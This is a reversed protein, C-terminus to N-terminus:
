QRSIKNLLSVAEHYDRQAGLREFTDCATSLLPIAASPNEQMVYIRAQIAQTRATEYPEDEAFLMYIEDFHQHITLGSNHSSLIQAFVRLSLARESDQDAASSIAREASQTALEIEERGLHLLARCRALESEQDHTELAQAAEEAAILQEEAESLRARRLLLDCLTSRAAVEYEHLGYEAILDLCRKLMEEAHGDDGREVAIVALNTAVMAERRVDGLRNALMAAQEYLGAAQEWEGGIDHAMGLNTYVAILGWEDSLRNYLQQARYLLDYGQEANGVQFSAIALNVMIQARWRDEASPVLVLARELVTSAEEPQGQALLVSGLRHELRAWEMAPLVLGREQAAVLVSQGRELWEYARDNHHGELLQGMIRCIRVEIQVRLIEDPLLPLLKDLAHTLNEEAQERYGQIASVEARAVRVVAAQLPPLTKQGLDTLLKLLHATRGSSIPEWINATAYEVAADLKGAFYLHRAARLQDVEETAYFDGAREHIERRRSRGLLEYFFLQLLSHLSYQESGYGGHVQVLHRLQLQMLSGPVGPRNAVADVADRSAPEGLLVALAEIVEREHDPLRDHVEQMLYGMVSHEMPLRTLLGAPEAGRRIAELALLTIQPNGDAIRYLQHSLEENLTARQQQLLLAYDGPALGGLRYTPLPQHERRSTTLLLIHGEASAQRLSQLLLLGDPDDGILHVNDLCILLNSGALYARVARALLEFQYSRNQSLEGWLESRGHHDLFSAIAALLAQSGGVGGCTHWLVLRKELFLHAIQAAFTSKGVGPPGVVCLTQAELLVTHAKILETARGVTTDSAPLPEPSPASFTMRDPIVKASTHWLAGDRVAMWLTPMWWESEALLAARAAAVARDILGDRRLETFLRPTFQAVLEIPVDGQMAIVAGVGVQALKPGIAALMGYTDGAGQCSALVILLPRYELRTIMKVLNDGFTPKYSKSDEQELWLRPKGDVLKGHCVLYLIDVGDRLASAIGALTASPRGERGDLLAVPIDGLGQQAREVEAAVDVPVMGPPLKSPNAVAVAARLNRREPAQVESLSASNLFRSFRVREHHALPTQDISDQLLEWRVAHLADDGQLVLRVQLAGSAGEAFGRAREWAERLRRKGFVMDTLQEGYEDPSLALSRLLIDDLPIDIHEALDARRTPLEVRLSATTNGGPSRLIILEVAAALHM